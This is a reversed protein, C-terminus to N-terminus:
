LQGASPWGLGFRALQWVATVPFRLISDRKALRLGLQRMEFNRGSPFLRERLELRLEVARRDPM